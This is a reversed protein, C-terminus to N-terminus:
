HLSPFVIADLALQDAANNISDRITNLEFFRTAFATQVAAVIPLLAALDAIPVPTNDYSIWAPPLYNIHQNMVLAQTLRDRATEDADFLIGGVEVPKDFYQPRFAEFQILKNMRLQELSPPVIEIQVWKDGQITLYHGELDAPRPDVTTDPPLIPNNDPDIDVDIENITGNYLRFAKM